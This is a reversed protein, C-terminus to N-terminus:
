GVHSSTHYKCKQRANASARCRRRSACWIGVNGVELAALFAKQRSTALSMESRPSLGVVSSVIAPIACPSTAWLNQNPKLTM